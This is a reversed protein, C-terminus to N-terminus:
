EEKIFKSCFMANGLQGRLYYVGIALHNVELLQKDQISTLSLQNILQGTVNLIQLTGSYSEGAPCRIALHNNVISAYIGFPSTGDAAEAEMEVMMNKIQGPNCGTNYTNVITADTGTTYPLTREIKAKFPKDEVSTVKLGPIMKIRHEATLKVGAATNTIDVDDALINFATYQGDDMVGQVVSPAPLLSLVMDSNRNHQQEWTFPFGQQQDPFIGNSEISFIVDTPTNLTTIKDDRIEYTTTWLVPTPEYGDAIPRMVAAIKLYIKSGHPVNFTTNKFEDLPILPTAVSHPQGISAGTYSYTGNKILENVPNIYQEDNAGLGQYEQLSIDHYGGTYEYNTGGSFDTTISAWLHEIQLGSPANLALSINESFNYSDMLFYNNQRSYWDIYGDFDYDNDWVNYGIYQCYHKKSILPMTELALNGLPCDYIPLGSWNEPLDASINHAMGPLQMFANPGDTETTITGTLTISGSSVTPQMSPATSSSGTAKGSFTNMVGLLLGIGQGVAGSSKIGLMIYKYLIRDQFKMQKTVENVQAFNGALEGYGSGGDISAFLPSMDLPDASAYYDEPPTLVSPPMPGAPADPTADPSTGFISQISTIFKDVDEPKPLKGIREKGNTLFDKFGNNNESTTNQNKVGQSKTTFEFAGTLEVTSNTMNTFIFKLDYANVSQLDAHDFHVLQEAMVWAGNAPQDEILYLTIEQNDAMTYEENPLALKRAQTLLSTNDSSQWQIEVKAKLYNAEYPVYYFMRVIATFKNYLFFRPMGGGVPQDTCGFDKYLLVWGQEERFDNADVVDWIDSNAPNVFPCGMYASGEQNVWYGKWNEGDFNTWDWDPTYWCPPDPTQANACLAFVGIFLTLVITKM